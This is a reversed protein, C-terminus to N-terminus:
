DGISLLCRLRHLDADIDALWEDVLLAIRIRPHGYIDPLVNGRAHVKSRLIDFIRVIGFQHFSDGLAFNVSGDCIQSDRFAACFDDIERM